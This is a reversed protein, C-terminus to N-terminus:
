VGSASPAPVRRPSASLFELASQRENPQDHLVRYLPHDTAKERGSDTRRYVSLPLSAITEIEPRHMAAWDLGALIGALPGAYGDISDAAAGPCASGM